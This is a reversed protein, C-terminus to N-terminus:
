AVSILWSASDLDVFKISIFRSIQAKRKAKILFSYLLYDTSLGRRDRKKSILKLLIM